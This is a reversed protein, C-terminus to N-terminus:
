GRVQMSLSARDRSFFLQRLKDEGFVRGLEIFMFFPILMVFVIAGVALIGHIDGNGFDSLSSALPRGHLWAGLAKEAIHFCVLLIAFLAAQWLVPYILPKDKFRGAFKLDQAILIVKAFILANVIAFGQEQYNVHEEELILTRHLSLLAFLVWLYLTILLYKKIEEVARAKLNPRAKGSSGDALKSKRYDDNSNQYM